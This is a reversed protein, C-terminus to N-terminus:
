QLAHRRRLLTAAAEMGARLAGVPDGPKAILQALMGGVLTDGAGTTDDAPVPIAPLAIQENRWRVAAGGAGRTEIVMCDDRLRGIGSVFETESHSFCILDARRALREAQARSFARADHKVVWALHPPALDLIRDTLAPPGVTLCIWEASALLNAQHTTLALPEPLSAHYLCVCGGDPTYGLIAIPTRAGQVNAIGDSRVGCEALAARYASGAADDGIWSVPAADAIGGAVLSAAVYAPSGGVRPWAQAPRRLIRTTAGPTPAGDLLAVHDLSAYGTIVVRTM